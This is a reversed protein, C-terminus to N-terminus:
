DTFYAEDLEFEDYLTFTEIYKDFSKFRPVRLFRNQYAEPIFAYRPLHPDRAKFFNRACPKPLVADIRRDGFPDLHCEPVTIDEPELGLTTLFKMQKSPLQAVFATLSSESIGYNRLIYQVADYFKVAHVPDMTSYLQGLLRACTEMPSNVEREPFLTSAVIFDLSRRPGTTRYYYGLWHLNEINDTIITKEPHLIGGFVEKLVSALAELDFSDPTFVVSDDGYYYDKEPLYGTVRRIAVRMQVANVCTDMFNTWMSGSPVGQFKQFRLGSPTRIKTNIFYSIMAKWRRCTQEPRVNWVKGEVDKVKTFDFWSSVHAFVDRIIWSTVHADFESLDACMAVNCRPSDFNRALHSHGSLATEMGLGYFSDFENCHQKLHELLPFFFRAEEVIVETPFGWVPRIKTKERPSAVIRCFAMSDPLSWNLGRGISDWARSIKGRAVPDEFVQAKTAYGQHVWPFGPSTTTAMQPHNVAAGITLPILKERPRLEDITKKLIALYDGSFCRRPLHDGYTMLNSELVADDGPPRHWSDHVDAVWQYDRESLTERFALAAIGDFYKGKSSPFRNVRKLFRLPAM